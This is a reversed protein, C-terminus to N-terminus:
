NNATLELIPSKVSIIISKNPKLGSCLSFYDLNTSGRNCIKQLQSFCTTDDANDIYSFQQNFISLGQRKQKKKIFIFAIELVLIFVYGLIDDGQKAGQKFSFVM